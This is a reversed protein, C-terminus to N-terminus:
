LLLSHFTHCSNWEKHFIIPIFLLHTLQSVHRVWQLSLVSVCFSPRFPFLGSPPFRGEQCSLTCPLVINFHIKHNDHRYPSVVHRFQSFMAGIHPRNKHIRTSETEQQKGLDTSNTRRLLLWHLVCPFLKTATHETWVTCSFRFCSFRNQRPCKKAM